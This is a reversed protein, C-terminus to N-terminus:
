GAEFVWNFHRLNVTHAVFVMIFPFFRLLDLESRYFQQKNPTAVDDAVTSDQAPGTTM